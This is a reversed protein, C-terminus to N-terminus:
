ASKAASNNANPAPEDTNFIVDLDHQEEWALLEDIAALLTGTAAAVADRSSNQKLTEELAYSSQQLKLAGCYCSAGHVRHTEELLAELNDDQHHQFLATRLTPLDRLLDRLFEKALAPKNRARELSLEIQVPQQPMAREATVCSDLLDRLQTETIPKILCLDFGEALLRRQEEPLLHATLAVIKTSRNESSGNRIMDAVQAGNLEPMQIDLLILDFRQQECHALAERGNSALVASAGFEELLIAILKLNTANDDVALVRLGRMTSASINAPAVDTTRPCWEDCLADYLPIHGLPKTLVKIASNIVPANSHSAHLLWVPAKPLPLAPPLIEGIAPNLLWGDCNAARAPLARLDDAVTVEIHWSRLLEILARQSLPQPDYLLLQKGALQGFQRRQLPLEQAPLRLSFWFTSGNGLASNLGIEGGMHEVLRKSIALGLGTGGFERSTSADAQTFANFLQQQHQVDIGIGTDRVSIKLPVRAGVAATLAVEVSIHGRPTFKIANSILNTLIQRLRLPDGILETPVVTDYALILDLKKENASPALITLTDEIVERLNFPTNDLVLKGAEMKSFDLIDSIIGLLAEASLRITELYERQRADLVSKLLLKSFGIIGNLPTRLEHSTNALFESKIRSAELAERRALDLEINQIEVTELSERLDRNTQELNRRLEIASNQVTSAMRNLDEALNRLTDDGHLQVPADFQGNAIRQIGDRLISVAKELRRSAFVAIAVASILALAVIMGGVFLSQYTDVQYPSRSYEVMVWGLPASNEVSKSDRENATHAASNFASTFANNPQVPMTIRLTTDTAAIINQTILANTQAEVLQPGAHARLQRAGDYIAVANVGPEELALSSMEQLSDKDGDRLSKRAANALQLATAHSRELLLRNIDDVRSKNFYTGLALAILLSPTLATTLILTKLGRNQMAKM